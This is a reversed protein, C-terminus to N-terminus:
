PTTQPLLELRPTIIEDLLQQRIQEQDSTDSNFQELRPQLHLPAYQDPNLPALQGNDLVKAWIPDTEIRNDPNLRHQGMIGNYQMAHDILNKQLALQYSDWGLAELPHSVPTPEIAAPMTAFIINTLDRRPESYALKEPTLASTGYLPLSLGFYDLQPRLISLQAADGILILAELDQRTRPFFEIPKGLTRSLFSARSQSLDTQIMKSMEDRLNNSNHPYIYSVMTSSQAFSWLSLLEQVRSMNVQADSSIIGIRQYDHQKLQEILQANENINRFNFQWFQSPQSIHNLAVLDQIDTQNLQEIQERILPGIITQAGAQKAQQYAQEITPYDGTNFFLIKHQNQLHWHAKLIGNQIQRSVLDYPEYFPLLVGIVQHAQLSDIFQILEPLLHQHFSVDQTIQSLDQLARKQALGSLSRTELLWGWASIKRNPHTVLQELESSNIAQLALWTQQEIWQRESTASHLWLEETLLIYNPWDANELAQQRQNQWAQLSTKLDLTPPQFDITEPPTDSIPQPTQSKDPLSTCGSIVTAVFLMLVAFRNLKPLRTQKM